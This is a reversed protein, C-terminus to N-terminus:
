AKQSGTAVVDAKWADIPFPMAGFSTVTDVISLAGHERIAKLMPEIDQVVGTSTENHTIIVAKYKKDKDDALKQKLSEVSVAQGAPVSLKDV